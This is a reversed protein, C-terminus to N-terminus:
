TAAAISLLSVTVLGAIIAHSLEWRNRLDRWDAAEAVAFASFFTSGPKSMVVRKVWFDNVPHTMLWYTVHGVLLFALASATWWVRSTGYPTLYLLVGLAISGGVEGILGVLTFGPYYITQVAKYTAKDVRLKGPLEAVHALSTGFKAAVLMLCLITMFRM